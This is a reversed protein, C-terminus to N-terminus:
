RLLPVYILFIWHVQLSLRIASSSVTLMPRNDTKTKGELSNGQYAAWMDKHNEDPICKTENCKPLLSTINVITDRSTECSCYLYNISTIRNTM